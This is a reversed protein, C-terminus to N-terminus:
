YVFIRGDLSMPGTTLRPVCGVTTTDGSYGVILYWWNGGFGSKSEDLPLVVINNILLISGDIEQLNYAELVVVVLSRNHVNKHPM